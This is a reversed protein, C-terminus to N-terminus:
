RLTAVAAADAHGLGHDKQLRRIRQATDLGDPVFELWEQVSHGTREAMTSRFAALMDEVTRMGATCPPPGSYYIPVGFSVRPDCCEVDPRRTGIGWHGAYGTVWAPLREGDVIAVFSGDFADDYHGSLKLFARVGYRLYAHVNAVALTVAKAVGLPQLIELRDLLADTEAAASEVRGRIEDRDQPTPRATRPGGVAHGSGPTGVWAVPDLQNGASRDRFAHAVLVAEWQGRVDLPDPQTVELGLGREDHREVRVAEIESSELGEFIERLIAEQAPSAGEIKV